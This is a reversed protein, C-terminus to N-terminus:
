FLITAVEEAMVRGLASDSAAGAVAQVAAAKEPVAPVCMGQLSTVLAAELLALDMDTAPWFVRWGTTTIRTRGDYFRAQTEATRGDCLASFPRAREFARLWKLGRSEQTSGAFGARVMTAVRASSRDKRCARKLLLLMTAWLWAKVELWGRCACLLESCCFFRVVLNLEPWGM